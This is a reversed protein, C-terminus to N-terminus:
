NEIVKKQKKNFSEKTLYLPKFEKIKMNGRHEVSACFQKQSYKLIKNKEYEIFEVYNSNFKERILKNIPRFIALLKDSWQPISILQDAPVKEVNNCICKFFKNYKKHILYDDEISCCNILGTNYCRNCNDFIIEEKKNANNTPFMERAIRQFYSPPPAFFSKESRKKIITHIVSVIQDKSLHSLVDRIEERDLKLIENRYYKQTMDFLEQFFADNPM